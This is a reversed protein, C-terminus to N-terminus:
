QDYAGRSYYVNGIGILTSAVDPHAQDKHIARFMKLAKEYYQLAQDYAGRSKYVNGIGILTSAVDPHAQDKYIAQYMKLAKEYYQLAQDYAGRSYYVNGIGILTSAVDPHAQAKYIAQRMKLAQQYCEMAEPYKGLEDYVRGLHHHSSAVAEHDHDKYLTLRMKLGAALHEQAKAYEARDYYAIGLQHLSTAVEAHPAQGHAKKAVELSQQRWALADDYLCAVACAKGLALTLKHVAAADLCARYKYLAGGHLLVAAWRTANVAADREDGAYAILSKVLGELDSQPQLHRVVHQTVAHVQVQKQQWQVLSHQELLSLAARVGKQDVDAFAFVWDEPIGQPDLYAFRRLLSLAQQGYAAKELADLNTSLVQVVSETYVVDQEPTEKLLDMLAEEEGSLRESSQLEEILQAPTQRRNQCLSFFQALIFPYGSLNTLLYQITKEDSSDLTVDFKQALALFDQQAFKDLVWRQVGRRWDGSKSNRSTLLVHGHQPPMYAQIAQSDPADDFVWLCHKSALADRIDRIARQTDKKDVVIGLRDGIRLYAERLQEPTKANLWFLHDYQRTNAQERFLQIALQSKGMGGPGCLLHVIPGPGPAQLTSSIKQLLATRGVFFGIGAGAPIP